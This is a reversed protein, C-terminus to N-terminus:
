SAWGSNDACQSWSTCLPILACRIVELPSSVMPIPRSHRSVAYRLLEALSKAPSSM